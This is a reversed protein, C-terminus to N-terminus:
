KYVLCFIVDEGKFIKDIKERIKGKMKVDRVFFVIFLEKCLVDM